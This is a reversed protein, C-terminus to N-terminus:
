AESPLWFRLRRSPHQCASARVEASTAARHRWWNVPRPSSGSRSCCARVQVRRWCSNSWCSGRDTRCSPCRAVSKGQSSDARRSSEQCLPRSGRKSWVLAPGREVRIQRTRTVSDTICEPSKPCIRCSGTQLRPLCGPAFRCGGVFMRIDRGNFRPTVATVGNLSTSRLM